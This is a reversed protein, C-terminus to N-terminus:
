MGPSGAVHQFFLILFVASLSVPIFTSLTLTNYLGSFPFTSSLFLPPFTVSPTSCQSVARKFSDLDTLTAVSAPLHNWQVVTLPYFSCKCYDIRTSIQRYALPDSTRSIRTLLIVYGPLPVAVHGYIILAGGSSPKGALSRWCTQCAQVPRIIRLSGGLRGVTIWRLKRFTMKFTLIGSQLLM